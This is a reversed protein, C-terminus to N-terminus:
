YRTPAITTDGFMIMDDYLQGVLSHDGEIFGIFHCGLVQLLSDVHNSLFESVHNFTHLFKMIMALENKVCNYSDVEFINIRFSSMSALMELM